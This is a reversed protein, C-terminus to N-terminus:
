KLLFPEIRNARPEVRAILGSSDEDLYKLSFPLRKAKKVARKGLNAGSLLSADEPEVRVKYDGEPAGEETGTKLNFRGDAGITGESTIAGDKSVFYIRGGVLPKGGHLLVTGDVQYVHGIVPAGDTGSCGSTLVIAASLLGMGYYAMRLDRSRAPMEIARM